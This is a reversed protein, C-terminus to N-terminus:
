HILMNIKIEKVQNTGEHTVELRDWIKKASNCTFIRNFKKADLACYLINMTNANLQILKKDTEDWDKELKFSSTGNVIVTPTHPDNVIVSWIDNDLAPIFIHM